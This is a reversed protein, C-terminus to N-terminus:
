HGSCFGSALISSVVSPSLWQSHSSGTQQRDFKNLFGFFFFDITSFWSFSFKVILLPM